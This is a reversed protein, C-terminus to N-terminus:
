LSTKKLKNGNNVIRVRESQWIGLLKRHADRPYNGCCLINGNRMICRLM